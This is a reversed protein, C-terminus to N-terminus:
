KVDQVLRVSWGRDRFYSGDLRLHDIFNFEFGCAGIETPTSSWYQGFSGVNVISEIGYRYGAAPLFVAGAKEMKQWENVSYLNADYRYEYTNTWTLGSPTIWGEPLIVLGEVGAIITKGCLEEANSRKQILYEWEEITMTRWQNAKDGGNTIANGGWDVFTPYDNPDWNVLDTPIDSSHTPNNGTGWGFLDIWGDYSESIKTNDSKVGDEYVNGEEADGVFDYQHEAFRWTKTSARYQLNGQSFQVQDGQANITFKGPLAGKQTIPADLNGPNNPNGTNDPSNKQTCALMGLTALALIFLKTKM